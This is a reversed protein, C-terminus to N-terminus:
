LPATDADRVAAEGPRPTRPMLSATLLLFAAAVAVAIFVLTSAATITAPDTEDGGQAAISANAISGLLAVGITSGLTRLFASLGTVVGRENWPVSSQAVILSPAAVFGLGFGVVLCGIALVVINPWPAVVALFACALTVVLAGILITSRFGIRLYLRGSLTSAIPWGLTLAAVALGAVLPDAGASTQLYTPAFSTIGILVVGVVAANLSTTLVIRRTIVRVPLVPEAARREVLVFAVVVLATFGFLGLSIPSTWEWAVGGELIALLLATLAITLLAAGAYDIRHERREVKERFGRVLLWAAVLGLPLNIWFIWPWGVFQSFLGGLTPGAVSSIAWVSALYGQIRAREEV